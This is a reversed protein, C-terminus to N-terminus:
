GSALRVVALAIIFGAWLLGALQLKGITSRVGGLQIRGTLWLWTGVALLLALAIWVVLPM